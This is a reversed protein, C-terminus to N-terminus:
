TNTYTSVWEGRKGERISNIVVFNLRTEWGGVGRCFSSIYSAPDLLVGVEYM